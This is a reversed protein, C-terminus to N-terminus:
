SPRSLGGIQRHYPARLWGQKLHGGLAFVGRGDHVGSRDRNRAALIRFNLGGLCGPLIRGFRSFAGSGQACQAWAAEGFRAGMVFQPADAQARSVGLARVGRCDHAGSQGRGRAFLNRVYRGALCCQSTRVFFHSVGQGQVYQRVGGRRLKGGHYITTYRGSRKCGARRKGQYKAKFCARSIRRSSVM